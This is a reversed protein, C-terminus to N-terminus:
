NDDPYERQGGFWSEFEHLQMCVVADDDLMGPLAGIFIPIDSDIKRRKMAKNVQDIVMTFPIQKRKRTEITWGKGNECDPDAKGTAGTRELGFRRCM